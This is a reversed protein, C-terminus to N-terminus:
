TKKMARRRRGRAASREPRDTALAFDVKAEGMNVRLVRVHVKDGLSYAVGTREGTMRLGGPECHFYDNGLSTVHILGEIYIDDLIV